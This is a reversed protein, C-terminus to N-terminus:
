QTCAAANRRRERTRRERNKWDKADGYDAMSAGMARNMGEEDAM